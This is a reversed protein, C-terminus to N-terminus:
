RERSWGQQMWYSELRLVDELRVRLVRRNQRLVPMRQLRRYVARRELGWRECLQKPTLFDRM